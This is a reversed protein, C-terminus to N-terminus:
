SQGNNGILYIKCTITIEVTTGSYTLFCERSASDFESTYWFTVGVTGWKYQSEVSTNDAYIDFVCKGKADITSLLSSYENEWTQDGTGGSAVIKVLYLCDAGVSTIESFNYFGFRASGTRSVKKTFDALTISSDSARNKFNKLNLYSHYIYSNGFLDQKFVNSIINDGKVSGTATVSTGSISRDNGIVYNEGVKYSNAAIVGNADVLTRNGINLTYTSDNGGLQIMNASNAFAANGIAISNAVNATAGDGIAVSFNGDAQATAGIAISVLGNAQASGIAISSSTTVASNYGISVANEAVNSIGNGITVSNSRAFSSSGIAIGGIENVQAGSGIAISGTGTAQTLRENDADEGGIAIARNATAQAHNGVAVASDINSGIIGAFSNKGFATNSIANCPYEIASLSESKVGASNYWVPPTTYTPM